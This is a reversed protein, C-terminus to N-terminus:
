FSLHGDSSGKRSEIDRSPSGEGLDGLVPAGIYLRGDM